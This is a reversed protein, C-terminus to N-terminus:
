DRVEEVGGGRSKLFSTGSFAVWAVTGAIALGILVILARVWPPLQSLDAGGLGGANAVKNYQLIRDGAGAKQRHLQSGARARSPGFGTDGLDAAASGLGAPRARLPAGRPSAQPAPEQARSEITIEDPDELVIDGEDELSRPRPPRPPAPRSSPPPPIPETLGEIHLEEVPAPQAPAPPPEPAPPAEPAVPAPRAPPVPPVPVEVRFRLLLEGLLFEQMDTLEAREVRQGDVTVGNRSRDDVVYWSDGRQELHAHRRSVSGDRLTIICDPSRGLTDGNSVGFSKGVDPGSLVFLQAV